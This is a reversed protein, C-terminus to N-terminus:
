LGGEPPPEGASTRHYIALIEELSVSGLSARLDAQIKKYPQELVQRINSAIDDFAADLDRQTPFERKELLDGEQSVLGMKITTGGIDVGFCVQRM